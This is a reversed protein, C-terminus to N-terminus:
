GGGLLSLAMSPMQNAQALVSIGAQALINSRTLAATEEAVDVDRIRSNAASLNERASSLNTITVQLRNQAAGLSARGSSISTIAEDIVTMTSRAGVVNSVSVATLGTTTGLSSAHVDIMSVTIRDNLNDHIGVQFVFSSVTGDLLQAGNFETVGAIRDIEDRLLSFEQQLFGRETTGLTGNASQVALERMRTLVGSIENMASEATQILSVGDMTNREAQGLGRIQARLKESIALGAADDAATNIRLGSALRGFHGQLTNTTAALHRQASLSAVNTVVSFSM